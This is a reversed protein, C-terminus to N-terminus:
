CRMVYKMGIRSEVRVMTSWVLIGPGSVLKVRRAAAAAVATDACWFKWWSQTFPSLGPKSTAIRIGGLLLGTTRRGGGRARGAEAEAKQM